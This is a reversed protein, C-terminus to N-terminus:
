LNSLDIKKQTIKEEKNKDIFMIMYIPLYTIKNKIELNSNCLVFANEIGYDRNDLVNDLASHKTYDKGSKVEIPCISGNYDIVFDLEGQKHSNFYFTDYGHAKLEQAVVNEYIAGCNLSNNSNIIALQTTRGYMSTLLGVDSLFLKFLNSKVNIQLPLRPETVNYVPITVGADILWNFSNEYRDFKFNSDINKFIFRKNKDALEFPILDYIRVLKLKKDIEYKSFDLKYQDVLNLHLTNIKNYNSETVYLNVVEPMGGVVLYTKFAELMKGHIFEDVKERNIFCDYLKEITNRKIGLAIVFEEFDLPYMQLSELYGVPVSRIGVLEVGLLSGSLIFKFDNKEVLFKIITLIEKFEQIEDLFIITKGKIFEHDSVLTLREIFKNADNNLGSLAEILDPQKILNFEVYDCNLENLTERIIFTKGIQRAGTVLLAKSSNNIWDIIQKQVKRFLM